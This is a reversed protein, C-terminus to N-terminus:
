AKPGNLADLMVSYPDADGIEEALWFRFSLAGQAALMPLGDM